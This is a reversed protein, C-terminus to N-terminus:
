AQQEKAATKVASLDVGAKHMKRVERVHAAGKALTEHFKPNVLVGNVKLDYAYAKATRRAGSDAPNDQFVKFAKIFQGWLGEQKTTLPRDQKGSDRYVFERVAADDPPLQVVGGDFMEQFPMAPMEPNIRSMEAVGAIEPLHGCEATHVHQADEMDLRRKLVEAAFLGEETLLPNEPVREGTAKLMEAHAAEQDYTHEPLDSDPDVPVGSMDAIHETTLQYIAILSVKASRSHGKAAEPSLAKLETYMQERTLTKYEDINM